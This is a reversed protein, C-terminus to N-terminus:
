LSLLAIEHEREELLHLSPISVLLLGHVVEEIGQHGERAGGERSGPFPIEKSLEHM